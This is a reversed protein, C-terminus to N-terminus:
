LKHLIKTKCMKWTVIVGYAPLNSLLKCIPWTRPQRYAMWYLSVTLVICETQKSHLNTRIETLYNIRGQYETVSYSHLFFQRLKKLLSSQNKCVDGQGAWRIVASLRTWHTTVKIEIGNGKNVTIIFMTQFFTSGLSVAFYLWFSKKLKVQFYLVM